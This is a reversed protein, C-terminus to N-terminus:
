QPSRGLMVVRTAQDLRPLQLRAEGIWLAALEDGLERRLLPEDALVREYVRRSREKWGSSERYREVILGADELLPRHDAVQIADLVPDIVPLDEAVDWTTIAFCGGPRLIRAIERAAAHKDPVFFLTDISLVGAVSADALGTATASARRFECRDGLGLTDAQATAADIGTQSLDIGVLRCGFRQTMWLGPGGRGCGLDALLDSEGLALHGAMEALEGATVFSFPQADAPFDPGFAEAFVRGVLPYDGARLYLDWIQAM